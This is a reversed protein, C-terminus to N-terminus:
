LSATRAPLSNARRSEGPRRQFIVQYRTSLHPYSSRPAEDGTLPVIRITFNRKIGKDRHVLSRLAGAFGPSETFMIWRGRPALHRLRAMAFAGMAGASLWVPCSDDECVGKVREVTFPYSECILDFPGLTLPLREITIRIFRGGTDAFRRAAGSQRPNVVIVNHGREALRVADALEESRESGIMLVRLARYRQAFNSCCLASMAIAILGPTTARGRSGM